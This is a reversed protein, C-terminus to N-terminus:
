QSVRYEDIRVKTTTLNGEHILALSITDGIKHSMVYDRIDKPSIVDKGEIKTIVDGPAIGVRDCPGGQTVRIVVVGKTNEPVGITHALQPDIQQMKMGIYPRKVRGDAILQKFIDQFIESPIAFGINQGNRMIQRNIGVVEGKINLLPGGSNGPNIAADTQIFDKLTSGDEFPTDRGVASIIGLTVTHDFGLPSGIAVAFEGPKLNKSEGIKAVPLGKANIKVLALDTLPDRGIVQGDFARKDALTVKIQQADGVVHNNTLIYGDSKLIIGSGTGRQRQVLPEAQEAIGFLELPFTHVFSPIQVVTETDINVVSKGAEAAIDAITELGLAGSTKDPAIIPATTSATTTPQVSFKGAFYAGSVMVGVALGLILSGAEVKATSKRPM